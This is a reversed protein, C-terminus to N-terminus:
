QFDTSAASTALVVQPEMELEVGFRGRVDDKIRGALLLIDNGSGGAHNVLVLAQRNHVGVKGNRFGKWGCRDILWAAALKVSHEAPYAAIDPFDARLRDWTELPVVPNKFFSGVNPLVAPDPLKRRRVAMVGEAVDLPTLPKDDSRNSFYDKLDGYGLNLPASRSLCLTVDLIIYRGPCQKFLSDRYAFCCDENSLSVVEDNERDWATVSSLTDKLEAGYAGINQVPAAGATGPILAMNEIGRYGAKAAYIVADHWCEGAGLILKAHDNDVETWRRGSITIRVVLGDVDGAFVLNSGGGLVLVELARQNAWDLAQRLQELSSAETFYRARARIGLTNFPSLDVSERVVLSASM